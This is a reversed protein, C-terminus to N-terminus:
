MGMGEWEWAILEWEKWTGVGMGLETVIGMGM